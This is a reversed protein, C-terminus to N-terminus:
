IRKHPKPIFPGTNVLLNTASSQMSIKPYWELQDKPTPDTDFVGRGNLFHPGIPVICPYKTPNPNPQKKLLPDTTIFPSQIVLVYTNYFDFTPFLKTLWDLFGYLLLWIPLGKLSFQENTPPQLGHQRLMTLVYVINEDGTDPTPNYRCYSLLNGTVDEGETTDAPLNTTSISISVLRVKNKGTLYSTYFPNGFGYPQMPNLDTWKRDDKLGILKKDPKPSYTTGHDTHKWAVNEFINTNLCNFGTCNNDGSQTCYGRTLDATAIHVMCLNTNVFDAALVM